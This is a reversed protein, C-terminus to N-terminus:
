RAASVPMRKTSLLPMGHSISGCSSPQPLPMVQQRRRRSQCRAPTHSRMWRTSSSGNPVRPAIAQRRTLTALVLTSALLPPEQDAGVRRIAAFRARLVMNHDFGLAEREKGRMRGGALVVTDRELPQDGRNGGDGLRGAIPALTRVLHMGVLAVTERAPAGEQAAVADRGADGPPADLAALLEAPMAPHHLARLRPQVAEAAEGDAVLPALIDM